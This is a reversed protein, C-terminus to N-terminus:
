FHPLVKKINQNLNDDESLIEESKRLTEENNDSDNM